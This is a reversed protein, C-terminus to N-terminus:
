FKFKKSMKEDDDDGLGNGTRKKGGGSQAQEGMPAKSLVSEAGAPGTGPASGPLVYTTDSQFLAGSQQSKSAQKAELVHYLQPQGPPMPTEEGNGTKRLDVGSSPGVSEMGDMSPPPPLISQVGGVDKGLQGEEVEEEEDSSEEDMDDEESSSAEEEDELEAEPLGGWFSRSIRKGDGSVEDPGKTDLGDGFMGSSDVTPPGFVDGYLGRGFADVPPKGWGHLHYGYSCGEPLPANVGPVALGSYSPPPGYRQMNTLWPPPAKDNTMGLSERLRKSLKGPKVDSRTHALEFEKGEYYLDGFKTMNTPKTQYKFFADHLTKYDVDVGGRIQVRSRQKQKLSMKDEAAAQASRAEGVGTQILFQPLQFPTKEIGRKGQLYKRKRGWHRPVPVTNSLSKLHLLFDPDPSTVDHAEVLEPHKVRQKLETITPRTLDRLQRRSLDRFKSKRRREGNEDYSSQDSEYFRSEEDEDTVEGEKKINHEDDEESVVGVNARAAFRQMILHINNDDDNASASADKAGDENNDIGGIHENGSGPAAENSPENIFALSEAVYEIVIEQLPAKEVVSSATSTSTATAEQQDAKPNGAEDVVIRNAESERAQKQKREAKKKERKRRNREAASISM